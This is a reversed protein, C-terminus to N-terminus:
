VAFVMPAIKSLLPVRDPDSRVVELEIEGHGLVVLEDDRVIQRKVALDACRWPRRVNDALKSQLLDAAPIAPRELVRPKRFLPGYRSSFHRCKVLDERERVAAIEREVDLGGRTPGTSRAM